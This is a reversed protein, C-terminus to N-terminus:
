TSPHGDNDERYDYKIHRPTTKKDRAREWEAKLAELHALARAKREQWDIPENM